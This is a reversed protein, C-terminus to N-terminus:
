RHIAEVNSWYEVSMGNLLSSEKVLSNHLTQCHGTKESKAKDLRPNLLCRKCTLQVSSGNMKYIICHNFPNQLTVFTRFNSHFGHLFCFSISTEYFRRSPFFSYYSYDWCIFYYFTRACTPKPSSDIMSTMKTNSSTYYTDFAHLFDM